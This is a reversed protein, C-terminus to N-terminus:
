LSYVLMKEVKVEKGEFVIALKMMQTVGLSQLENAYQQDEIQKFAVAIAQEITEHKRINVKKFEIIIGLKARDKPILMVDYRGYGSERNSRLEHTDSLLVLLGIVFAHYVKESEQGFDHYSFIKLITEQFITEFTEIDGEILAKLMFRQTENNIREVFWREVFNRYMMRVERNPIALDYFRTEGNNITWENVFKLYGSFLLFSWIVDDKQGVDAYIITEEIKKAIVKGSILAEMEPKLLQNNDTLLKEILANDATNVWYPILKKDKSDMFNLISWPNYIVTNGFKYGNYWNQMDLLHNVLQYMELALQLEPETLGFKDDFESSLITYVGLNNLGSFISEKAVRLIGTLVGKEVSANDKLAASLLNRIFCINDEYYDNLYGAQIPTDYEDILLVVKKQHFRQLYQTLNKLSNEYDSQSGALNIIAEFYLKEQPKLCDGVLVYDHRLYEAQIIEHLKCLCDQWTREKVDKFTLFIVPYSGQKQTYEEGQNLIALGKFLSVNSIVTKEFYYRLTSLNLTKGFRRPRTILIIKASIDITEKIFLSKDIYFFNSERLEKFDSIGIPIKQM